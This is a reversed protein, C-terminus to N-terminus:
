WSVISETWSCRDKTNRAVRAVLQLPSVERQSVFCRSRPPSASGRRRHHLPPRIPLLLPAFQRVPACWRRVTEGPETPAATAPALPLLAAHQQGASCCLSLTSARSAPSSAPFRRSQLPASASAAAAAAAARTTLSRRQHPLLAAIPQAPNNLSPGFVM